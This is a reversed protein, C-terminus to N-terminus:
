IVVLNILTTRYTNDSRDEYAAGLWESNQGTGLPAGQGTMSIFNVVHGAWFKADIFFGYRTKKYPDANLVSVTNWPMFTYGQWLCRTPSHRVQAFVRYNASSLPTIFSFYYPISNIPTTSANAVCRRDLRVNYGDIFNLTDMQEQTFNVTRGNLDTLSGSNTPILDRNLRRSLLNSVCWAQVRRGTPFLPTVATNSM